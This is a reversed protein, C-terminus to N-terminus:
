PARGRSSAAPAARPAVKANPKLQSQGEIVVREGPALGKGVVASDEETTTVVVKRVEATNQAGVVYVFSGEPGRQVAAAPVVLAGPLTEIRLRAKVFQNPWLLREPNPIVAKLRVTATAANVQNDVLALVGAGLRTAGDRNYVEVPLDGRALARQVRVLDDQPLSFTIAMPDLQTVVVLGSADTSRVLNGADVLRVGTVGDIPSRVRAYDLQLRANEIQAQDGKLGAEFQNVQSAQDDLQQQTVLGDKQLAQDRALAIKANELQARDRALTAEAQHLAIAFPRPDVQALVDGKKVAQGEKFFVKDLRGDVQSRVAVTALPVANGLGDLYLPVDHAEATALTVTVARAAASGSAAPTVQGDRTSSRVFHRVGLLASTALVAGITWALWRPRGKPASVSPAPPLAPLPQDTQM